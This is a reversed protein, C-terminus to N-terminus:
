FVQAHVPIDRVLINISLLSYCIILLLLRRAQVLAKSLLQLFM